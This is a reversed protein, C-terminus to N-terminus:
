LDSCYTQSLIQGFAFRLPKSTLEKSFELGPILNVNATQVQSTFQSNVFNERSFGKLESILEAAM